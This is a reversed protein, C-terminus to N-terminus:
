LWLTGVSQASYVLQKRSASLSATKRRWRNKRSRRQLVPPKFEDTNDNFDKKLVTKRFFTRGKDCIDDFKGSLKEIPTGESIDVVKSNQFDGFKDLEIILKESFRVQKKPTSQPNAACRLSSRLPVEDSGEGTGKICIIENMDALTETVTKNQQSYPLMFIDNDSAQGSHEALTSDYGNDTTQSSPLSILFSSDRGHGDLTDLFHEQSKLLREETEKFHKELKPVLAELDSQETSKDTIRFDENVVEFHEQSKLLKEDTEKLHNELEPVLAELDSPETTNRAEQFDEHVVQVLEQTTHNTQGETVDHTADNLERSQWTDQPCTKEVDDSLYEATPIEITILTCNDTNATEQIESKHVNISAPACPLHNTSLTSESHRGTEDFDECPFEETDEDCLIFFAEEEDYLFTETYDHITALFVGMTATTTTFEQDVQSTEIGRAEAQFANVSVDSRRKEELNIEDHKEHFYNEREACTLASAEFPETTDDFLLDCAEESASLWEVQLPRIM